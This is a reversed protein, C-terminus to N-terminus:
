IFPLSKAKNMLESKKFIVRTKADFRKNFAKRAERRSNFVKDGIESYEVSYRTRWSENKNEPKSFDVPCVDFTESGDWIANISYVYVPKITYYWENRECKCWRGCSTCSEPPKTRLEHRIEFFQQGFEVKSLNSKM